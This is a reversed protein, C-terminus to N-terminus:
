LSSYEDTLIKMLVPLRQGYSIRFVTQAAVVESLQLDHVYVNRRM